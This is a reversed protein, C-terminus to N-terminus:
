ASSKFLGLEGHWIGKADLLLLMYLIDFLKAQHIISFMKLTNTEAERSPVFGVEAQHLFEGLIPNLKLVILKAYLKTDM